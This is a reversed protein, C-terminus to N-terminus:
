RLCDDAVQGDPKVGTLDGVSVQAITLRVLDAGELQEAPFTQAVAVCRMGAAKAAQVGNLADEVVVCQDPALGLRAAAGLFIDPAPKKAKVEGRNRRLGLDGAAPRDPALQGRDQGRDASSAVAVRLGAARCAGVLARVGPFARLRSPVLELYIEYTRRKAAPLDLPWRYKEAM